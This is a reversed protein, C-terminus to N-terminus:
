IYFLFVCLQKLCIIESKRAGISHFTFGDALPFPPPTFGAILAPLGCYKRWLHMFPRLCWLYKDAVLVITQM